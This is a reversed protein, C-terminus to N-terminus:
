ILVAPDKLSTEALILFVTVPTFQVGIAVQVNTLEGLIFFMAHTREIPEAEASWGAGFVRSVGDFLIMPVPPAAKRISLSLM